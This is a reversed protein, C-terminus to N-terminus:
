KKEAVSELRALRQQFEENQKELSQIQEQQSKIVGQQAAVMTQLKLLANTSDGMDRVQQKFRLSSVATGLQGNSDIYIPVGDGGVTSGFIGAVYAANQQGDGTGQTGIRIANSETGSAPGQSSVYINSSGTTNNYGANFGYFSNNHGTSNYGAESGYFSNGSADNSFGSQYGAFTDNNGTTNSIGAEDGSFTNGFGTTNSAGAADGFFSNCCATTNGFGAAAGVFTNYSGTTNSTGAGSGSFHNQWGATNSTGAYFGFFTNYVGQGELNAVGAGRGLFLSQDGFDVAVVNIGSIQYPSYSNVVNGSLTGEALGNGSIHFNASDQRSTGNQIYYPSGSGGTVGTLNSGNGYYVNSTNSLTVASSYPGSFQSSTLTGSLNLFPIGTLGAGNGTFTGLANVNGTGDVSFKTVGKNQGRLIMGGGANNFVAATGAPSAVYGSVGTTNGSNATEIGRVGTGSSSIASGKVAIVGGTKALSEGIVAIGGTGTTIGRVGYALDSPATATGVIADGAATSSIGAGTGSQSVGVIQDSTSGSFTTPGDAPASKTTAKSGNGSGATATSSSVASSQQQLQQQVASQLTDSTVFESAAHGALRDAENAKMAYPVSVLLVRAQEAQGQVQVGLWRQEQQSFLDGPLGTATTSGLLVSYNGNADLAVNQTEQWVAAGGDQQKYIAFIVGVTAPSIASTGQADKLTGSYRILNPVTTVSAQQASCISVLFFFALALTISTKLCSM